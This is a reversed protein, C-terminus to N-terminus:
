LGGEAWATAHILWVPRQMHATIYGRKELERLWRRITQASTGFLDAYEATRIRIWGQWAGEVLFCGYLHRAECSLTFDAAIRCDFVCYAYPPHLRQILTTRQSARPPPTKRSM